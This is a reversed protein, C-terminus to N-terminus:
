RLACLQGRATRAAVSAIVDAARAAGAGNLSWADWAAGSRAQAASLLQPWRAPEPWRPVVTALAHRELARATALQEDHPRPQPIVVAPRRATAVDAVANQGAHTVIVDASTLLPWPDLVWRRGPPGLVTWRWAPTAERAADLDQNTLTTGGRGSLVLVARRDASPAAARTRAAFRSIAGVEHLKDRWSLGGALVGAGPPWPAVIADALRYALQHADDDRVGPLAVVVLPVGMLRVLAAVEISVDVVVASPRATDIWAAVAAMRRRLGGHGVPAWHLTGSATVDDTDRDVEGDDRPLGIWETAWDNPRRRSSLVTLEDDLAAAITGARLLHGDGQHHVYYGIM